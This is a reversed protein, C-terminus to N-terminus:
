KNILEVTAMVSNDGKRREALPVLRVMGGKHLIFRKVIDNYLKYTAMNVRLLGNVKLFSHRDKQLALKFFRHVVPLLRKAKAETTIIREQLILSATM